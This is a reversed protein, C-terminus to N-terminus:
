IVSNVAHAPISDDYINGAITDFHQVNRSLRENDM